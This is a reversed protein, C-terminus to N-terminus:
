QWGDLDGGPGPPQSFRVRRQIDLEVDTRRRSWRRHVRALLDNANGQPSEVPLVRFRQWPQGGRRMIAERAPLEKLLKQVPKGGDILANAREADEASLQFFIHSGVSLVAARMAPPFQALYQNGTIIGVGTKRAEALLTEIGSTHEVINQLEDLYLSVRRQSRRAFIARTLYTLFLGGLTAAHDGLRGKPLNLIIWSARDLAQVLPVAFDAQGLIHRFHPDAVLQSVKNLVADRLVAQMADSAVDYRDRFYAVVDANRVSRLCNARFAANTLLPPLEILTMSASSLVFLACRLLEETRPGLTSLDWRQKLLQTVEAIQIFRDADSTAALINLGVAWAPDSPDIVIVRDSLDVGRRREEDALISLAYPATDGHQDILVAGYDRRVDDVFVVRMASTKGTGTKGLMVVHEPRVTDELRVPVRSASVDSTAYGLLAGATPVPPRETRRFLANAARVFLQEFFEYMYIHEPAGTGILCVITLGAVFSLHTREGTRRRVSRGLRSGKFRPGLSRATPSCHRLAFTLKNLSLQM